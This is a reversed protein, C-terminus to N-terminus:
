PSTEAREDPKHLEARVTADGYLNIARRATLLDGVTLLRGLGSHGMWKNEIPTDEPAREMGFAFSKAFPMLARTLEAIREEETM